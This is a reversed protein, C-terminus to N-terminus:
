HAGKKLRSSSSSSSSSSSDINFTFFPQADDVRQNNNTAIVRCSAWGDEFTVEIVISPLLPAASVGFYNLGRLKNLHYARITSDKLPICYIYMANGQIMCYEMQRHHNLIFLIVGELSPGVWAYDSNPNTPEHRILGKAEQPLDRIRTIYIRNDEVKRTMKWPSTMSGHFAWQIGKDECEQFNLPSDFNKDLDSLSGQKMISLVADNTENENMQYNRENHRREFEEERKADRKAKARTRVRANLEERELELELNGEACTACTLGQISVLTDCGDVKCKMYIQNNRPNNIPNWKKNLKKNSEKLRTGSRSNEQENEVRQIGRKKNTKEAQFTIGRAKIMQKEIMSDFATRKNSKITTDDPPTKGLEEFKAKLLIKFQKKL